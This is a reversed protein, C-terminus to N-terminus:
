YRRLLRDIGDPHGRKNVQMGFRARSSVRKGSKSSEGQDAGDKPRPAADSPAAFQQYLYYGLSALSVAAGVAVLARNKGKRNAPM